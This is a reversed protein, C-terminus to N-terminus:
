ETSGKELSDLIRALTIGLGESVFPAVSNGIQTYRPCELARMRGGTTYKGRFTFWDPFSQLRAYERVTLIRPESYHVLDDPLTTLTPSPRRSHLVTVSHKRTKTLGKREEVRLVVAERGASSAYEILRQFANKVRSTHRALRMSNMEKPPYQRLSKQYATLFRVSPEVYALQLRNQADPCPELDRGHTELDSIADWATTIQHPVLGNRRYVNTQGARIKKEVLRSFLINELEFRETDFAVLFFRPRRQPVGFEFAHHIFPYCEYGIRRLKSIIRESYAKEGNHGITVGIVNELAVLKPRLEAVVDIYDKFLQNRPDAHQRRGAVSFGQCPPSGIVVDIAKFSERLSRSNSLAKLFQRITMPSKELNAPWDFQPCRRSIGDILNTRLTEFASLDKEIAAVGRFGAKLMGLSFGGCGAFLDVFKRKRNSIM